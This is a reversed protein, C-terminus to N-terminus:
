LRMNKMFSKVAEFDNGSDIWVAGIIAKIVLYGTTYKELVIEVM